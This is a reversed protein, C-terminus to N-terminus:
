LNVLSRKLLQTYDAPLFHQENWDTHLHVAAQSIALPDIRLLAQLKQLFPPPLERRKRYLQLTLGIAMRSESVTGVCEFPKYQKLGVLQMIHNKTAPLKFYDGGFIRRLDIPPVFPNLILYAFACKACKRCWVKGRGANCSIFSDFYQPYHSFLGAIQLETLPRLFSFYKSAPTLYMHVYDRFRKEFRYSKSYQHNIEFGRYNVNGESASRENSVVCYEFGYLEGVLISLFGLYASFPTHGNLYGISNLELLRPSIRREVHIPNRYGAIYSVKDAAPTPNLLLANSQEQLHRLLNLTVISDKGGGVLILNKFYTQHPHRKEKVPKGTVRWTTFDPSRFDIQNKFYFEGLGYMLLDQWWEVQAQSLYGAEIVIEAPSAAKWYSLLEVLGLNFVFPAIARQNVPNPVPIIIEPTFIIDPELIFTFKIQLLQKNIATSFSKYIFRPHKQRLQNVTM